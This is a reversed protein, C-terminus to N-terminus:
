KCIVNLIFPMGGNRPMGRFLCLRTSLNVQALCCIDGM